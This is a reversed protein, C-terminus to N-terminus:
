GREEEREMEEAAGATEESLDRVWRKESGRDRGMERRERRATGTMVTEIAKDGWGM